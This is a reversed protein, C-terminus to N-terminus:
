FDFIIDFINDDETEDDFCKRTIRRRRRVSYFDLWTLSSCYMVTELASDGSNRAIQFRPFSGCILKNAFIVIECCKYLIRLELFIFNVQPM